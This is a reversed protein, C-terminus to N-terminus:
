NGYAAPSLAKPSWGKLTNLVKSRDYGEGSELLASDQTHIRNGNADLIILVPFGFRQPFGYKAFIPENMNEKSYNLHYWIFNEEVLAKLEEDKEIFDQFKYCWSCWNGGGQLLVYKGGAAAKEIAAEIDAAANAEPHYLNGYSKQAELFQFSFLFVFHIFIIKKM